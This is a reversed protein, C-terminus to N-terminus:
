DGLESDGQVRETEVVVRQKEVDHDLM